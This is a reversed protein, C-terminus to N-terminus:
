RWFALWQLLDIGRRGLFVSAAGSNLMVDIGVAALILLGLFVAITNTM